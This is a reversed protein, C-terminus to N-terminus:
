KGDSILPTPPEHSAIEEKDLIAAVQEIAKELKLPNRIAFRIDVLADDKRRMTSWVTDNRSAMTRHDLWWALGLAVVVMLLLVDRITFRFM